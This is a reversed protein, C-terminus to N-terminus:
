AIASILLQQMIRTNPYNSKFWCIKDWDGILSLPLFLYTGDRGPPIHKHQAAASFRKVAEVTFTDM